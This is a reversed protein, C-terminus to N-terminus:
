SSRQEAHQLERNTLNFVDFHAQLARNNALKWRYAMRTTIMFYNPARAGNFGGKNEVTLANQPFATSVGTYTGAPLPEEFNGNLNPDTNSDTLTFPAGSSFQLVGSVNLGTTHPIEYSGNVSFLHPRDQATPSERDALHLDIAKTVPDTTQFNISDTAGPANVVGTGRSYTYSARFSYGHSARKQVSMQLANYDAYGLNVLENVAQTFVTTPM